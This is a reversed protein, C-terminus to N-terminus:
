EKPKEVEDPTNVNPKSGPATNVPFRYTNGDEGPIPEMGEAARIENANMWGSLIGQQYSAFRTKMDARLMSDYDFRFCYKGIEDDFLLANSLAQEISVTIPMLADDLYSQNAAEVNNWTSGEHDNLKALPVRFIRSIEVVSFKRAEILQAELSTMTLPTFDMGEELLAVKHANAGSQYAAQWSAAIREGAEKSLKGPHSLVGGLQTGQGYLLAAHRQTALALGIADAALVIPSVGAIADGVVFGKLHIVNEVSAVLGGAGLLPHTLQYTIVGRESYLTTVRDPNIPILATPNGAEDRKIYIYGNGRLVRCAVVFAWFEFPTQWYNPRALLKVLPHKTELRTGGKPLARRMELPLKATDESLCKVCSYVAACALSSQWTVPMGAHSQSYALGLLGGPNRTTWVPDNSTIDKEHISLRAELEAIRQKSRKSM